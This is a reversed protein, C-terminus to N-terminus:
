QLGGEHKRLLQEIVTDVQAYRRQWTHRTAYARFAERDAETASLAEDLAVHFGAVDRALHVPAKIARVEALETSVVPLGCALYEYMKLPNISDTLASKIFPILGVDAHQLYAPVSEPPRTGLIHVNPLDTLSTLPVNAQGILVFSVDARRRAVEALLEVDFWYHIAGVYVAIPRPLGAYEAPPPQTTEFRAVDVGNPLHHVGNSRTQHLREFVSHSVAFVADSHRVVEQEVEPLSRPSAAFAAHDDAARYIVARYGPQRVLWPYAHINTLWLLDARDFGANALVPRVPPLTWRHGEWALSERDLPGWRRYPFLKLACYEWPRDSSAASRASTSRADTGSRRRDVDAADPPVAGGRKWIPFKRALEPRNNILNFPHYEGGLWGVQWGLDLFHRAYHHSGVRFPTEWVLYEAFLVKV